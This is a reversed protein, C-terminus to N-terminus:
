NKLSERLSASPKQHKTKRSEEYQCNLYRVFALSRLSCFKLVLDAFLQDAHSPILDGTARQWMACVDCNNVVTEFLLDRLIINNNIPFKLFSMCAVEMQVLIDFLEDSILYLAGRNQSNTWTATNVERSTARWKELLAHIEESYPKSALKKVFYGGIYFLSQRTDESISTTPIPSKPVQVTKQRHSIIQELLNNILYVFTRQCLGYVNFKSKLQHFEKTMVFRSHASMTTSITRNIRNVLMVAEAASRVLWQACEELMITTGATKPFKEMLTKIAKDCIDLCLEQNM